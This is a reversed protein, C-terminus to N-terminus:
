GDCWDCRGLEHISGWAIRRHVVPTGEFLRIPLNALRGSFRGPRPEFCADVVVWWETEDLNRSIWASEDGTRAERPLVTEDAAFSQGQSPLPNPGATPCGDGGNSWQGQDATAPWTTTVQPPCWGDLPCASGDRRATGRTVVAATISGSASRDHLLARVQGMAESVPTQGVPAFQPLEPQDAAAAAAVHIQRAIDTRFALQERVDWVVAMLALIFPVMVAFEVSASGRRTRAAPPLTERPVM